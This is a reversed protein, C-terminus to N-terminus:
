RTRLFPAAPSHLGLRIFAEVVIQLLFGGILGLIAELV